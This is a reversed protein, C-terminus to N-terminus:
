SPSRSPVLLISKYVSPNPDVHGLGNGDRSLVLIRDRDLALIESQAATRNPAGPSAGPNLRFTPLTL